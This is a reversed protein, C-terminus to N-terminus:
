GALHRGTDLWVLHDANRTGFVEDTRTMATEIVSM